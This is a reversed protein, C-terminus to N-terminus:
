SAIVYRLLLTGLSELGISAFVKQEVSLLVHVFAVVITDGVWVVPSTWTLMWKGTGLVSMTSGLQVPAPFFSPVVCHWRMFTIRDIRSLEISPRIKPVVSVHLRRDAVTRGDVTVALGGASQTSSGVPQGAMLTSPPECTVTPVAVACPTIVTSELAVEQLPEVVAIEAVPLPVRSWAIPGDKVGPIM